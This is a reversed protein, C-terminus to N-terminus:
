IKVFRHNEFAVEVPGNDNSENNNEHGNHGPVLLNVGSGM